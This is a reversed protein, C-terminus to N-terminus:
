SQAEGSIEDGLLHPIVGQLSPLLVEEVARLILPHMAGAVTRPGFRAIARQTWGQELGLQIMTREECSLHEYKTGM